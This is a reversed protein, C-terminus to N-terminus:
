GSEGLLGLESTMYLRSDVIADQRFHGIAQYETSGIMDLFAARSPYEIVLAEDWTDPGIFTAQGRSRILVRGSRKEVLPTVEEVYRQYSDSGADTFRLLNWMWIVGDYPHEAFEKRQEDTPTLYAM